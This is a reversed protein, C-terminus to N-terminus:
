RLSSYLWGTGVYVNDVGLQLKQFPVPMLPRLLAQPDSFYVNLM